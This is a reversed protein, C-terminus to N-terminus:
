RITNAVKLMEDAVKMVRANMEYGRQAKILDTMENMISVNSTELSGQLIRGANNEGAINNIAPGSAATPKFLNRGLANLGTQNTFTFTPIQGIEVADLQDKLYAEVLGSESISVTLTNTPFNLTPVVAHGQKDVLIGEASVSFAGDRTYAVSQDPLLLGFFGDGAIMLDFPNNTVKPTGISFEKKVASVKTGSGLQVGVNYRDNFSSRSGPRIITEYLLSETEARQRKYGVTNVNAINNSIASVTLEQAEMGTAAINLARMTAHIESLLCCVIIFFLFRM